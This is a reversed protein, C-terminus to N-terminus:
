RQPDRESWITTDIPLREASRMHRGPWVSLAREGALVDWDARRYTLM